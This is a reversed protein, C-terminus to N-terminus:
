HLEALVRKAEGALAPALNMTLSRQLAAKTESPVKLHYKAMGLYFYTEASPPEQQTAEQLLRAARAYNGNRYTLVGLVKAVQPDQPFAERAKTAQEIARQDDGLEFYLLALARNAPTFSPQHALIRGYLDAAEHFKGNQEQVMASVVLAPVYDPQASLTQQAFAALDKALTPESSAKILKLFKQADERLEPPLASTAVALEMAAQADDVRGLGYYAWALYYSLEPDSPKGRAGEELLSAAWKDDGTRLVLQGLLSSVAADGPALNHAQKASALAQPVDPPRHALFLRSLRVLIRPNDANYKLATRCTAIADDLKGERAQLAALRDLAVLDGPLDRLAQQIQALTGPAPQKPDIALIALRKPIEEKGPFEDSAQGAQTLALRAPEEEDMMYYTMGLHFQIESAGPLKASSEEILGLARNYEGRKYLIWGLTDAVSPDYPLLARAREALSYAKSLDGLRESYLYALNNLAPSFRPNQALLREYTERAASYNKSQEQIIGIQMLATVDNTKATFSRLRELANEEQHEAVYLEALLLYGNRLDPNLEISKRLAAEAEGAYARAEPVNPIELRGSATASSNTSLSAAQALRIKALLLLPEAAKPRKNIESQVRQSASAYQKDALDFDIIKELAPMYEPSIELCKQFAQRAEARKNQRALLSGILFPVEPSKPFVEEMRRCVQMAQEPDKQVLYANALLLHAQALLPQRRLLEKLAAIAQTTDGQRIRLSARLLIADAYNPDLAVAQDLNVTAKATNGALLNARALQFQVQPSRGYVTSMRNFEALAKATDGKELQVMGGFLLADYNAPDRVLVRQLLSQCEDYKRENLAIQALLNWAPLYDPANRTIEELIRRAEAPAQTHLKFEAYKVRRTSRMPSLEAASKFAEEAHTLDNRAWYINGLVMQASTSKPDLELAKKLEAESNTLELGRGWLIGLAVHYAARDQDAQRLKAIQQQTQEVAKPTTASEALVELAEEQGPQKTLVWAAEQVAKKFDRLSVYSLSLKLRTEVNQPELDAAKLLFAHARLLKGEEQYIIGLHQIAAPDLPAIQIVKLYQIEAEDYRGLEFNRDGLSLHRTRATEKSCGAGVLTLLAAALLAPRSRSLM